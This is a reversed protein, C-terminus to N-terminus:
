RASRWAMIALAALALLHLFNYTGALYESFRPASIRESLGESAEPLLLQGMLYAVFFGGFWALVALLVALLQLRRTLPHAAARWAGHSVARGILWGGGLAVAILGWTLEVPFLLLGYGVAVGVAALAGWDFAHLARPRTLTAFEREEPPPSPRASSLRGASM